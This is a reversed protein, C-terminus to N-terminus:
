FTERGEDEELGLDDEPIPLGTEPDTAHFGDPIKDEDEEILAGDIDMVDDQEDDHM